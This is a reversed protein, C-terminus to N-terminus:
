ELIFFHLHDIAKSEFPELFECCKYFMRALEKFNILFGTLMYLGNVLSLSLMFRWRQKHEERDHTNRLLPSGLICLSFLFSMTFCFLSFSCVSYTLVMTYTDPTRCEKKYDDTFLADRRKVNLVDFIGTGRGPPDDIFVSAQHTAPIALLISLVLVILFTAVYVPKNIAFEETAGSYKLSIYVSLLILVLPVFLDHFTFFYTYFRCYGVSQAWHLNVYNEVFFPSVLM